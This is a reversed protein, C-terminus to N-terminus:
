AVLALIQEFKGTQTKERWTRPRQHATPTSPKGTYTWNFPKAFTKNFYDVFAQLKSKLDDTSTFNGHRMVRKSIIGFVVEIQNLWSSHKPLFVFRIRHELDTLFQRRTDTSGLIGRRRKKDGLTDEAIGLRYAIRRVVEEGSHINLNDLVFVWNADPNTQITHEIHDAFDNNNRTPQITTQIMQGQVVHWSGIVSLTGHRTYQCERKGVQGVHPLKGAARLENAQLSTMEDVCVTHTNNQQYAVQANLYTNCVQQVQRDFAERDKETTFCWTKRKSPQLKLQRLLSNVHSVSISSVVSRKQLEDALERGTWDDVPRGSKRPPECAVSALQVVVEASFKGRSGTRHSDRLVDSIAREFGATCERMEIELLARYSDQWRRRWQGVCHRELNLAEGIQTNTSGGFGLLIVQARVSVCKEARASHTIRTLARHM